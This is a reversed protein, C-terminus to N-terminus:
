VIRFSLVYCFLLFSQFNKSMALTVRIEGKKRKEWFSNFTYILFFLYNKKILIIIWTKLFFVIFGFYFIIDKNKKYWLFNLIIFNLFDLNVHIITQKSNSFKMSTVGVFGLFSHVELKTFILVVLFQYCSITNQFNFQHPRNSWDVVM